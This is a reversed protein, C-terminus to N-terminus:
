VHVEVPPQPVVLWGALLYLLDHVDFAFEWLEDGHEDWIGHGINDLVRSIGERPDTGLVAVGEEALLKCSTTSVM